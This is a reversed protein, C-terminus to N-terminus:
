NPEATTSGTVSFAVSETQGSEVTVAVPSAPTSELAAGDRGRLSLEFAGPFLFQFRAAFTGDGDADTLPLTEEVVTPAGEITATHSLVAVVDALTVGEPLAAEPALTATAEVAGSLGITGARIVPHMVWAGSGGAEHGFSEAVSFDVLLVHQDGDVTLGGDLNVKLGSTAFSPTRLAGSVVAGEPLGEYDPSTAYIRTTGEAEEVAVYAGTIVFRLQGYRGSPVAADTVLDMTENALSLLDVTRKGSFLVVGGEGSADEGALTVKEITVVAAAFDGPADTLKLTVKGDGGNCATLLAAVAGALLQSANKIM